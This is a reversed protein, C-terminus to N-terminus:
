AKESEAHHVVDSIAADSEGLTFEDSEPPKLPLIVTFTSGEGEKSELEIWGGMLTVLQKVISLGLGAGGYERTASDDVQRFPEFIYQQADEPIGIGTDAVAMAWHDADHMYVRVNVSGEQTFKVANNSFNILIQHLRQWDGQLRNPVDDAVCTTLELGKNHAMMDMVGKVGDVLKSPTFDGINLKITGAEIRARDLLNNVLGLMHSSNALLRGIAGRQQDNLDGYVGENLMETYGMIANLPTRLEHSAISVFTSKMRDIEAEKTFDRFVAVTGLDEGSELHVPAASASLTKKGWQFKVSAEPTEEGRLFESITEKDEASVQGEMLTEFDSGVIAEASHALLGTVAPNAVTAKGTSDFVIIGDATSDLIAETQSLSEALDRTRARVRDELEVNLIRLDHIAREMTRAALWSLLAVVVFTVMQSLEPAIQLHLVIVTILLNVVGAVIFSAYPRLLVSGMFIPIVFLIMSRGAAVEQPNDGLALIIMFLTLFSASALWGAGYKNIFFIVLTGVSFGTLTLFLLTTEARTSWGMVGAVTTALFTLLILPVLGALIINLLKRRRADDPDTTPVDLLKSLRTMM